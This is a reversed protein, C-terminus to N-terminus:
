KKSASQTEYGKDQYREISYNEETAPESKLLRAVIPEAKEFINLLLLVLAAIATM